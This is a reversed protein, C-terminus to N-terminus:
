FNFLKGVNREGSDSSKGALDSSRAGAYDDLGLEKRFDGSARLTGDDLPIGIADAVRVLGNFIGATSAAEVFQDPRLVKSLLERIEALDERGRSAAEALRALLEGHEVGGHGDGLAVSLEAEDGLAESSARLLM